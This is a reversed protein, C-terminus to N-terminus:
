RPHYSGVSWHNGEPDSVTGGRGGYDQDVVARVLTGGGEVARAVVGDPDDSVLYAASSGANDVGAEPRASGFMIGGGVGGGPAPWLWEAHVVVSADAEDRYTALEAFGVLRLWDLMRDADSFVMSHWLAVHHVSQSTTQTQTM